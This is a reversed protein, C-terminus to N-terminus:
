TWTSARTRSRFPLVYSERRGEESEVRQPTMVRIPAGTNAFVPGEARTGALDEERGAQSTAQSDKADPYNGNDQRGAANTSAARGSEYIRGRLMQVRVALVHVNKQPTEYETLFM